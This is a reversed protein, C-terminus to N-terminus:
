KHLQRDTTHTRPGFTRKKARRHCCPYKSTRPRCCDHGDRGAERLGGPRDTILVFSGKSPLMPRGQRQTQDLLRAQNFENSRRLDRLQEKALSVQRQLDQERNLYSSSIQNVPQLPGGRKM